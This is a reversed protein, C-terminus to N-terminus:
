VTPPKKTKTKPTSSKEKAEAAAEAKEVAAGEHTVKGVLDGTLADVHVEDIGSKGAVKIDYSYLLKGGERELEVASVRGKPVEALATKAAAEETIKAERVLSAPLDKKYTAKAPAKTATKASTTGQAGATTAAAIIAAMTFKTLKTMNEEQNLYM